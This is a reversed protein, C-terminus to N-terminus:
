RATAGGFKLYLHIKSGYFNCLPALVNEAVPRSSPSSSLTGTLRVTNTELDSKVGGAKEKIVERLGCREM